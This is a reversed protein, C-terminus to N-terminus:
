EEKIDLLVDAKEQDGITQEHTRPRKFFAALVGRDNIISVLEWGRAGMRVLFYNIEYRDDHRGDHEKFWHAMYDWYEDESM